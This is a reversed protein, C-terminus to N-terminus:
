IIDDVLGLELCLKSNLWLEQSLIEEIKKKTMSTKSKYIDIINDMLEENIKMENKLDNFKGEMSSSLQHILMYSNKYIYRNVGNVSLISASSCAYGRVYTNIGIENNVVLDVLGLTENLDGGYSTIYLNIYPDFSYEISQKSINLSTKKIEKSLSFASISDIDSHFYINNGVTYIQSEITDESFDEEM